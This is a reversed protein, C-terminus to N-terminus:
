IIYKERRFLKLIKIENKIKILESIKKKIAKIVVTQNSLVHKAKYVVVNDNKSIVKQFNYLKKITSLSQVQSNFKAIINGLKGKKINPYDVQRVILKLNRNVLCRDQFAKKNKHFKVKSILMQSKMNLLKNKSLMRQKEGLWLKKSFRLNNRTRSKKAMSGSKNM